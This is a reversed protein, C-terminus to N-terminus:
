REDHDGREDGDGLEAEPIPEPGVMGPANDLAARAIQSGGVDLESMGGNSWVLAWVDNDEGRLTIWSGDLIAPTMERLRDLATFYLSYEFYSVRVLRRGGMVVASAEIGDSILSNVLDDLSDFGDVLRPDVLIDSDITDVNYGM